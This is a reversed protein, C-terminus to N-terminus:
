LDKLIFSKRKSLPRSPQFTVTQGIKAQDKPDHVLYKKTRTVTKQYVPHIWQRSVEVSATKATHGVVQGTFLKM